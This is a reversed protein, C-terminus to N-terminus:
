DQQVGRRWDRGRKAGDGGGGTQDAGAGADGPGVPPQGILTPTLTSASASAPALDEGAPTSGTAFWRPGCSLFRPM